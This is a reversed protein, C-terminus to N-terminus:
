LVVYRMVIETVLVAACASSAVVILSKEMYSLILAVAFGIVASILYSTASFIAPVTMVALVSYPVYYLFSKIFRNTVKKKILVLPIMRVLYTVGAMVLLYIFFKM